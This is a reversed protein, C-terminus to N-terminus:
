LLGESMYNTLVEMFKNKRARSILLEEGHILCCGNKVGDVHHMNVLYGKNSRFFGYPEMKEEMDQMKARTRYLGYETHFILMHGESEVYYIASVDLKQVGDAVVISIWQKERKKLRSIARDLKQSFAFYTVPKLIYDLADVAYGRIAYNTMNTIFMIVVESDMERIKEAATMGDMFRMQIDMLIIDFNGRYNETIDEGDSFLQVSIERKSEKQYEQIYEVMQKVYLEEDEVIAIHIM